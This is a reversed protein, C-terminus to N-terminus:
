ESATIEDFHGNAMKCWRVGNSDTFEVHAQNQLVIWLKEREAKIVSSDVNFAGSRASWCLDRMSDESVRPSSARDNVNKLDPMSPIFLQADLLTHGRGPTVTAHAHMSVTTVRLEGISNHAETDVGIKIQVASVYVEREQKAIQQRENDEKAASTANEQQATVHQDAQISVSKRQLMLAGFAGVFGFFTVVVGAWEAINGWVPELPPNASGLLIALTAVGALLGICILFLCIELPSRRKWWSPKPKKKDTPNTNM